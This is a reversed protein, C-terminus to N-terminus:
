SVAELFCEPVDAFPRHMMAADVLVDREEATIHGREAATYADRITEADARETVFISVGFAGRGRESVLFGDEGRYAHSRVSYTTM